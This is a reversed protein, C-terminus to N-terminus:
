ASPCMQCTFGIVDRIQPRHLVPQRRRGSQEISVSMAANSAKRLASPMPRGTPLSANRSRIKPCVPFATFSRFRPLRGFSFPTGDGYNKLAAGSPNGEGQHPP